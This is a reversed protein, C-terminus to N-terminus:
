SVGRLKDLQNVQKYLKRNRSRSLESNLRVRERCKDCFTTGNPQKVKLCAVCLGLKKAQEYRNRFFDKTYKRVRDRNKDNWKKKKLKGRESRQYERSRIRDKEAQTKEGM